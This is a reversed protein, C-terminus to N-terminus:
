PSFDPGSDASYRDEYSIWTNTGIDYAYVHKLNYKEIWNCIASEYTNSRIDWLGSWNEPFHGSYGNITKLGLKDAIEFADLQYDINWSGNETTDIIYLIEADEPPETLNAMFISEAKSNWRSDVGQDNVNSVFLLLVAIVSFMVNRGNQFKIYRDATYATIISMPFSLILFFRAVARLSRVVPVFQYVFWWLSVGNASLRIVILIGIIISICVSRIMIEAADNHSDTKEHKKKVLVVYMILFMTLLIISFGMKVEISYNRESLRMSKILWGLIKNNEGVNILDILEPMHQASDWYTYGASSKFVPLYIRLFPIFLVLLFFIYGLFDKWYLLFINKIQMLGNIKSSSLRIFFVILFILCFLGTFCAAYWSTYTIFAFWFLSLCAYINRKRRTQCNKIFGIIFILLLPLFSIANLQSHYLNNAYTGSFCFAITGFLSWILGIHLNKRLLYYMCGTGFLHILIITYKYSFYINKGLFRFVSYVPSFGFLLDSYGLTDETPYFMALENFKEKGTFFHQWHETILNTLRGDGRDGIMASNGRGIINRFFFWECFGLILVAFFLEIIKNRKLM